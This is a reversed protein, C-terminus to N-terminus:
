DTYTSFIQFLAEKLDKGVYKNEYGYEYFTRGCYYSYCKAEGCGDCEENVVVEQSLYYRHNGNKKPIRCLFVGKENQVGKNDLVAREYRSYTTVFILASPDPIVFGFIERGIFPPLREIYQDLTKVMKIV